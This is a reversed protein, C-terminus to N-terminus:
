HWKKRYRQHWTNIKLVAYRDVFVFTQLDFLHYSLFDDVYCLWAPFAVPLDCKATLVFEISRQDDAQTSIKVEVYTLRFHLGSVFLCFYLYLFGKSACM